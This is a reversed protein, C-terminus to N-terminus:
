DSVLINKLIEEAKGIPVPRPANELKSPNKMVAMVAKQLVEENVQKVEKLSAPHGLSRFFKKICSFIGEAVRNLELSPDIGFVPALRRTAEEVAPLYYRWSPLLTLAVASGHLLIDKFSYSFGHPLGTGKFTIAIGGYTSALSLKERASIDSLNEKVRPLNELILSIGKETMESVWNPAPKQNLYSEILHSFADLGTAITLNLPASIIIEPDVVAIKPCIALDAVLVKMQETEDYIVAYKTVESGSGSTSPLAIIPKLREDAQRLAQSVRDTGYLDNLNGGLTALADACKTADIVSGGGLAILFDPATKKIKEFLKIVTNDSPEPEIGSFIEVRTEDKELIAILGDLYGYRKAFGQSTVLLCVRGLDKCIKGIEGRKGSGFIIKTYPYQELYTNM